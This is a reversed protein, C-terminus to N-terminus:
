KLGSRHFEILVPYHDSTKNVVGHRPTFASVASQALSQSALVYDIRTGGKPPTDQGEDWIGTSFTLRHERSQELFPLAADVLGADTFRRMVSFDFENNRLNEVHSHEIDSARAKKLLMPQAALFRQDTRSEANFDGLVLVDAGEELLPQIKASLIEAEATRKAWRFPSLHVVFIHIGAVRAHLYGHHMGETVGEIIEIPLVSTLGVSFGETKLLETHKHGWGAGLEALREHTINTLEQLAVLDLFQSALWRTAATVQKGKAFVYYTNYTAVRLTDPIAQQPGSRSTPAPLLSERPDFALSHDEELYAAAMHEGLKKLGAENFHVNDHKRFEDGDSAHTEFTVDTPVTVVNTLIQSVALQAERVEDRYPFRKHANSGATADPIVQGVVFRINKAHRDPANAAFSDRTRIIFNELRREYVRAERITKADAEGQQWFIARVVGRLGRSELEALAQKVTSEFTRFQLGDNPNWDGFLSTGGVAHKILYVQREPKASSLAAGLSMEVGFGCTSNSRWGAPRLPLWQDESGKMGLASSHFLHVNASARASTPLLEARGVGEMNSQGALLFVDVEMPKHQEPSSDHSGVAGRHCSMLLLLACFVVVTQLRVSRSRSPVVM